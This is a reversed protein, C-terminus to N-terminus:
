FLTTRVLDKKIEEWPRATIKGELFDRKAQLLEKAEADSIETVVQFTEGDSELGEVYLSIAKKALKIAEETTESQTFCGPLTPVSVSFGGEEQPTLLIRYTRQKM